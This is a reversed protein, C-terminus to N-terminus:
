KDASALVEEVARRWGYPGIGGARRASGEPIAPDYSGDSKQVLYPLDVADLMALDNQSDGIGVTTLKTNGSSMMGALDTVARGKDCGRALHWFRGGKSLTLGM